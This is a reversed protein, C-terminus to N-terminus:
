VNAVECCDCRNPCFCVETIYQEGADEDSCVYDYCYVRFQKSLSGRSRDHVSFSCFHQTSVVCYRIERDFYFGRLIEKMILKGESTVSLDHICSHLVCLSDIDSINKLVVYHSIILYVPIKFTYNSSTWFFNSVPHYENPFQYPGFESATTKIEVCDGQSIAGPPVVVAFDHDQNYFTGGDHDVYYSTINQDPVPCIEETAEIFKDPIDMVDSNFTFMDFSPLRSLYLNQLLFRTSALKTDPPPFLHDNSFRPRINRGSINLYVLSQNTSLILDVLFEGESHFLILNNSLDLNQLNRHGRLGEAVKVIGTFTLSNHSLNLEELTLCQALASVIGEIFDATIYNRSIDLSKISNINSLSIAIRLVGTSISNHSLNLKELLPNNCIFDALDNAAEESIANSSLKLSKVSTINKLHRIVATVRVTNLNINSMDINELLITKALVAVILEKGKDSINCGSINLTRLMILQKCLFTVIDDEHTRRKTVIKCYEVM